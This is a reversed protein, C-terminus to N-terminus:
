LRYGYQKKKNYRYLLYGSGGLVLVGIALAVYLLTKNSGESQESVIGSPTPMSFLVDAKNGQADKTFM